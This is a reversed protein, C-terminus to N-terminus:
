WAMANNKAAVERRKKESGNLTSHLTAPKTRLIDWIYDPDLNGVKCQGGRKKTVRSSAGASKPRLRSQPFSTAARAVGASSPRLKLTVDQEQQCCHSAGNEGGVRDPLECTDLSSRAGEHVRLTGNSLAREVSGLKASHCVAPVTSSRSAPASHPRTKRPVKTASKSADLDGCPAMETHIGHVESTMEPLRPGQLLMKTYDLHIVKPLGGVFISSQSSASKPRSSLAKRPSSPHSSIRNANTKGADATADCPIEQKYRSVPGTQM